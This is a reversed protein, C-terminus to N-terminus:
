VSSWSARVALALFDLLDVLEPFGWLLGVLDEEEFLLLWCDDLFRFLLGGALLGGDKDLVPWVLLDVPEDDVEGEAGAVLSYLFGLRM